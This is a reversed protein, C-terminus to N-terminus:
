FNMLASGCRTVNGAIAIAIASTLKVNRPSPRRSARSGFSLPFCYTPVTSSVMVSGAEGVIMSTEGSSAREARVGAFGFAGASRLASFAPRGENAPLFATQTM